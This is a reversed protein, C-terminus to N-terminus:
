VPNVSGSYKRQVHRLLRCYSIPIAEAVAFEPLREQRQVAQSLRNKAQYTKHMVRATKGQMALDIWMDLALLAPRMMKMQATHHNGDEDASM